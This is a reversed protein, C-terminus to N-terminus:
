VTKNGRWQRESRDQGLWLKGEFCLWFQNVGYCAIILWRGKSYDNFLLSNDAAFYKCGHMNSCKMIGNSKIHLTDMNQFTSNQGKSGMGLTKPSLPPPRCAFYISGYQQMEHNRKIQYADHGHESFTSIQGISGMGLTSPPHPSTDTPLINAVM